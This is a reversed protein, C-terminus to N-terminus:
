FANGIARDFAIEGAQIKAVLDEAGVIDAGAALAAQADPGTAFVAVRVKKGNGHPLIAVGKISQNPKRPDLSTGVQIEITEDFKAWLASKLKPIIDHINLQGLAKFANGDHRKSENLAVPDSSPSSSTAPVTCLFRRITLSSSSSSSTSTLCRHSFLVARISM